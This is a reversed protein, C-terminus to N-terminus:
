EVEEFGLLSRTSRFVHPKVIELEGAPKKSLYMRYQKGIVLRTRGSVIYETQIGNDDAFVLTQRKRAGSNKMSVLTGEVIDFSNSKAARLVAALKIGSAAAMALSLLLMTKDHVALGYVTGLILAAAALVAIRIMRNVIGSPIKKLPKGGLVFIASAM